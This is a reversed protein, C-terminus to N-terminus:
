CKSLDQLAQGRCSRRSRLRSHTLTSHSVSKLETRNTLGEFGAPKRAHVCASPSGGPTGLQLQIRQIRPQRHGDQAPLGRESAPRTGRKALGAPHHLGRVHDVIPLGGGNSVSNSLNIRLLPRLTSLLARLQEEVPRSLVFDSDETTRACLTSHARHCSGVSPPKLAAALRGLTGPVHSAELCVFQQLLKSRGASEPSSTPVYVAARCEQEGDCAIRFM